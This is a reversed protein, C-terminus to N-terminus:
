EKKAILRNAKKVATVMDPDAKLLEVLQPKFATSLALVRPVYLADAVLLELKALINAM